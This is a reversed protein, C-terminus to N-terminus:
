QRHEQSATDSQRSAADHLAQWVRDPTAPMDLHNVGLPRLADIVANIIAPPAGITAGEGVGKVGLPNTTCPTCEFATTLEPILVARPVGYEGMSPTLLQGTESDYMHHEVLAQGLGQALGGHTQGEAIMPNIVVGIDEVIVYKDIRVEGTQPDVEVECIHCGNPFNEKETSWTASADLGVGYKDTIGRPYFFAKAVDTLPISTQTGVVAFSGDAFELDQVAAELLDAAMPRCREIIREAALRLASGGVMSSRAAYTGRGFPVKDTDGQVFRIDQFPVGLWESVMQAYTTEHGQGHSFTGAVITVTGGPDFRLEMRDNFVGGQEIFYVLSRGRRRGIRESAARRDTFGDWDALRVATDLVRHFDGSDYVYGTATAYPMAEASIFNRRRFAVPDMGIQAAAADILREILYTAEPRGAGRYPGLPSTNTFVGRTMVHVAQVEYPGPIFRLSFISPVLGAPAIWAGINQMATARIGLIRGTDDFALEGDVVQDRGCTDSALAESRTAIWRVPRGVKRSGWLVLADEPYADAKMGFGGGVDPGIVRLRSEAIGLVHGLEQRAGHPNQTSTHLTYADAASDYEGLCGRPEISSATLRTNELHLSVHHPAAEFAANTRAADGFMLGWAVNGAPCDEHVLTAGGAAADELRTVADLEEYEVDILELADAAEAATEAIVLAVPEGVFRVKDSALIPRWTRHGKPAGLDEPMASATFGRLGDAIVDAGTLVALVGPAGRAQDADCRVISAHAVTSRLVSAHTMGPTTLDATYRARGTLFRRDEKRGVSQGIGFRPVSTEHTSTV